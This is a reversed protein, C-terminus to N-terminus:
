ELFKREFFDIVIDATSFVKTIFYSHLYLLKLFNGDILNEFFSARIRFIYTQSKNLKEEFIYYLTNTHM